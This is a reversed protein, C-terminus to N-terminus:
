ITRLTMGPWILEPPKIANLRQLHAVPVGVMEAIDDLSEGDAVIHASESTEAQEPAEATGELPTPRAATATQKLSNRTSM